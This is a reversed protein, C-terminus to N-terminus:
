EAGSVTAVLGALSTFPFPGAAFAAPVPARTVFLPRIVYPDDHGRDPLGLARAVEATYPSLDEYKVRLQTVYGPHKGDVFFRDLARRFDPIVVADAPDKVELLWIVLQGARGAVADVETRLAPVNLRAAKNEKIRDIVSWGDQRLVAVVQRELARNRDDRVKELAEEVKRPPEPQTWPLQGQELYRRYLSASGFCLHPSVVLRADSLVPLPQVLLRRKRSRAHWPKWDATALDASTSILMNLAADVRAASDAEDGFNVTALVHAAAADRTVAVADDDQETLPWTALALLTSVLDTGSAAYAERM